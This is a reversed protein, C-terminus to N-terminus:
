RGEGTEEVVFRRDLREVHHVEVHRADAVVLEVFADGLQQPHLVAATM